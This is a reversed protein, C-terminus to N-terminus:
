CSRPADGSRVRGVRLILRRPADRVQQHSALRGALAPAADAPPASGAILAGRTHPTGRTRIESWFTAGADAPAARARRQRIDHGSSNAIRDDPSPVPRNAAGIPVPSPAPARDGAQGPQAAVWAAAVAAGGVPWWTSGSDTQSPRTRRQVIPRKQNCPVHRSNVLPPKVSSRSLNALIRLKNPESLTPSTTDAACAASASM